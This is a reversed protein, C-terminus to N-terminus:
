KSYYVKKKLSIIVKLLEYFSDFYEKDALKGPEYREKTLVKLARNVPDILENGFVEASINAADTTKAVDHIMNRMQAMESENKASNYLLGLKVAERAWDRVEDLLRLRFNLKRDENRIRRNELISMYAIYALIVAAGTGLVISWSKFYDLISKSVLNESTVSILVTLAILIVGATIVWRRNGILWELM